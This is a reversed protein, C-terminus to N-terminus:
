LEIPAKVRQCVPANPMVGRALLAFSASRVPQVAVIEGAAAQMDRRMSGMRLGGRRRDADSGQKAELVFCHRKYADIRGFSTTGDAEIQFVTREFVYDNHANDTRSGKPPEVGILACLGGVFLHTNALESGGTLAWEAIFNDIDAPERM